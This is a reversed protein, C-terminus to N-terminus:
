RPRFDLTLDSTPADAAMSLLGKALAVSTIICYMRWFSFESYKYHSTSRFAENAAFVFRVTKSAFNAM